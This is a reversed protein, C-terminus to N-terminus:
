GRTKACLELLKPISGAVVDYKVNAQKLLEPDNAVIGRLLFSLTRTLLRDFFVVDRDPTDDETSGHPIKDEDHGAAAFTQFLPKADSPSFGDRVRFNIVVQRRIITIGMQKSPVVQKEVDRIIVEFKLDADPINAVDQARLDDTFKVAYRKALADNEQFPLLPVDLHDCISSSASFGVFERNFIKDIRLQELKPLLEKHIEALTVRAFYNAKYGRGWKNFRSLFHAYGKAYGLYAEGMKDVAKGRVNKLDKELREFRFMFPFSSVIRWSSGSDYGLVLGVGSMFIMITNANNSANELRAGIAIEYDHAFGILLNEGFQVETKFQVVAPRIDRVTKTLEDRFWKFADSDSLQMGKKKVYERTLDFRTQGASGNLGFGTWVPLQSSASEGEAANVLRGAYAMAAATLVTQLAKRRALSIQKQKL